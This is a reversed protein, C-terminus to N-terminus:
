SRPPLPPALRDGDLLASAFKTRRWQLVLEYGLIGDIDALAGTLFRYVDARRPVVLTAVLNASGTIAAAFPIAPHRALAEGVAHLRAPAVTMWFTATTGAGSLAPAIDVDLYAAGSRLLAEVRRTARGVTMGTTRALSAFPIRGDRALETVLRRDEATLAPASSGDPGPLDDRSRLLHIQTESLRDDWGKWYHGRSGGVFTHLVAHASVELVPAAKPLLRGLLEDAHADDIARLGFGVESGADQIVVWSVDQRAGLAKAIADAGDPRCHLRIQWPTSRLAVPEYVMTVRLLGERRLRRYRRAVTQEAVDLVAGIDSFSARPRVQLAQAIRRDLGDIDLPDHASTSEM